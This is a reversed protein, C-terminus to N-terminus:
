TGRVHFLEDHNLYFAQDNQRACVVQTRVGVLTWTLSTLGADSQLKEEAKDQKGEKRDVSAWGSYHGGVSSWTLPKKGFFGHCTPIPAPPCPAHLYNDQLGWCLSNKILSLLFSLTVEGLGMVMGLERLSSNRYSCPLLWCSLFNNGVRCCCSLGLWVGPPPQLLFCVPPLSSSPGLSFWRWINGTALSGPCMLIHAHAAKPLQPRPGSEIINSWNCFKQSETEEGTCFFIQM